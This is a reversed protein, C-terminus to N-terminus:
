GKTQAKAALKDNEIKAVMGALTQAGDIVDPWERAPIRLMSVAARVETASVGMYAAGGMGALMTQQCRLYARVASWNCRLVMLKRAAKCPTGKMREAPTMARLEEETARSKPASGTIAEAVAQLKKLGGNAHRAVM